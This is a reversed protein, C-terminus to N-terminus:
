VIEENKILDGYIVSGKKAFRNKRNLEATMPSAASTVTQVYMWIKLLSDNGASVIRKTATSQQQPDILSGADVVPCWSVANCGQNHASVIKKSDWEGDGVSICVKQLKKYNTEECRSSMGGTNLSANLQTLLRNTSSM